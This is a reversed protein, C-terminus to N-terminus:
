YKLWKWLEKYTIKKGYMLIGTRYIKAAVWTSFIFTAYLIVLSLGIQWYPVGYPIRVLMAVPSTFPIMSLWLAVSGDPANAIYSSLVIGLILPITLPLTFQQTDTNNDVAGGIGAMLSAFLIYGGVFYLLFTLIIEGFNISNIINMIEVVSENATANDVIQESMLTGSSLAEAGMSVAFVGYISLTLVIWLLFQTLGVLGIGIIKGMMLQFPKVSSVIVEIIRNSKEEIVGQMVQGSFGLIFTYIIIALLMGIIFQLEGFTEKESGDENFRISVVDMNASISKVVNPDIGSAMMKQYEIEKKMTNRINSTLTMSLQKTSYLEAKSPVAMEPLPIYLVADFVDDIVMKKASELDTHFYAFTVEDNNEFRNEFWTTEDIVAIKKMGGSVDMLIIPLIMLAAFLLPGAFTIILFSKKRVRSLYERKIILGIKNM